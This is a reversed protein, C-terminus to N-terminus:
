IQIKKPLDVQNYDPRREIRDRLWHRISSDHIGYIRFGVGGCYIHRLKQIMKELPMPKGDLFFQSAVQENLDKSTFGFTEYNLKSDEPPSISLPDAM